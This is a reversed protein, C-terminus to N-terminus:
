ASFIESSLLCAFFWALRNESFFPTSEQARETRCSISRYRRGHFSIPREKGELFSTKRLALCVTIHRRRSTSACAEFDFYRTSEKKFNLLSDVQQSPRLNRSTANCRSRMHELNLEPQRACGRPKQCAQRRPFPSVSSEPPGM